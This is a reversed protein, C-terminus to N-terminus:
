KTPTIFKGAPIDAQIGMTNTAPNYTVTAICSPLFLLAVALALPYALRRLRQLAVIAADVDAASRHTCVLEVAKAEQPSLRQNYQFQEIENPASKLVAEQAEVAEALTPAQPPEPAEALPARPKFYGPIPNERLPM